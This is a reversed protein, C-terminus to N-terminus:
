NNQHDLSPSASRSPGRSESRSAVSRASRIDNTERKLDLTKPLRFAIVEVVLLLVSLVEFLFFRNLPFPLGNTFSWAIL